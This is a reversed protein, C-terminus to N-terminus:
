NIGLCDDIKNKIMKITEENSNILRFDTINKCEESLFVEKLGYKQSTEYSTKRGANDEDYWLVIEKFREKLHNFQHEKLVISESALSISNYGLEYFLCNEKFAKSIILLDSNKPLLKIGQIAESSSDNIWKREKKEFTFYIRKGIYKENIDYEQYTYIPSSKRYQYSYRKNNKDLTLSKTSFCEGKNLTDLSIGFSNWYNYDTLNFGQYICNIESKVKVLRDLQQDYGANLVILPKLSPDVGCDRLNFDNSIISLVEYFTSNFKFMLYEFVDKFYHNEGFDRYYLNGTNSILVRCSPNEDEYLDSIFSTDITKFNKCYFYWLDIIKVKNLIEEKTIGISSNSFDLNM